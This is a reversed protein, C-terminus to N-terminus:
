KFRDFASELEDKKQQIKNELEEKQRRLENEKEYAKEIRMSRETIMNKRQKKKFKRLASDKPASDPRIYQEFNESKEEKEKEEIERQAAERANLREQPKRKDVTGINNPDLSIMDPKLKNMLMRVEGERRMKTTEYPNIELADFNSEGAGPIILSSFGNNHGVGLIDEFPVFRTTQVQSGPLLHSMYPDSQHFKFVDKWVTVHPGWGVSVLGTDSIDVTNGQTPTRYSGLEEFKRIDWIKLTKDAGLAAMYRGDRNVALSRVPGNCAQIKVLPTSMSPSWLTVQGNSHGAHIVANWPNQRMSVTPGLKTRIQSVMEGTSIDHYKIWGSKGASVLLYHYPLFELLTPDLHQSLKHIETGEHDYIYVYKKQAVAFMQNNQLYKVANVTEGLHLETHLRGLRWDFSAVHGKKGGILLDRGNRSYDITYPGYDKLKLEFHKAATSIDVNKVIDDQKFKWTREMGEAEVFGQEETLLIEAKQASELADEYDDEMQQIQKVRKKNPIHSKKGNQDGKVSSNFDVRRTSM